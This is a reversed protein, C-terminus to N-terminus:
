IWYRPIGCSRPPQYSHFPLSPWNIIRSQSRIASFRTHPWSNPLFPWSFHHGCNQCFACHDSTVLNFPKWEKIWISMNLWLLLAIKIGSNLWLLFCKQKRRKVSLQSLEPWLIFNVEQCDHRSPSERCCMKNDACFLKIEWCPISFTIKKLINIYIFPRIPNCHFFLYFCSKIVVKVVFQSSKLRENHARM